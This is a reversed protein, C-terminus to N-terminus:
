YTIELIEYVNAGAKADDGVEKGTLNKGLPSEIALKGNELSSEYESVLQYVVEKNTTTNLLKIKAGFEIKSSKTKSTDVIEANALIESLKAIQSDIFKQKDKSTHYEENEKLDGLERAAVIAQIIAPRQVNSYDDLDNQLKNYGEQTIKFRNM